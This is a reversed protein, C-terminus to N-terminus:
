LYKLRFWLADKDNAFEFIVWPFEVDRPVDGRIAGIKKAATEARNVLNGRPDPDFQKWQEMTLSVKASM